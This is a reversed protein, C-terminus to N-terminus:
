SEHNLIQIVEKLAADHIRYTHQISYSLDVAIQEWSIFCLYRKELLTQHEVNPISHITNMIEKKLDVLTNIDHNLEMQLDIMKCVADEMRSGGKNPNRPMDSLIASCSTALESLSEIQQIKSTIRADLFRAQSLYTKATM